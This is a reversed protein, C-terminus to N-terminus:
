RTDQREDERRRQPEIVLHYYMYYFGAGAGVFAGILTLVPETGWRRDAWLGLYSFLATSLALTLGAGMYKSVEPARGPEKRRPQKHM